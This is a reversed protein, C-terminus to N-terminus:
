PPLLAPVGSPAARLSGTAHCPRCCETSSVSGGSAVTKRSHVAQHPRQLRAAGPRQPGVPGPVAVADIESNEGLMGVADVEAQEVLGAPLLEGAGGQGAARLLDPMAVQGIGLRAQQVPQACAARPLRLLAVAEVRGLQQEVRVGALDDAAELPVLDLERVVPGVRQRHVRPVVRHLGQLRPDRVVGEVPAAIGRGVRWPSLGHQVLQVDFAERPQVGAHGLRQAAGIRAQRAVGGDFVQPPEAHGGHAQQRHVLGDVLFPQHAQAQAVVPAVVGDAEEARARQQGRAGAPQRRAVLEARHDLAQM